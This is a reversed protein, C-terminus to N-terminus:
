RPVDCVPQRLDVHTHVARRRARGDLDAVGGQGGLTYEIKAEPSDSTDSDIDGLIEDATRSDALAKFIRSYGTKGTGNEGYLITLAAHPEIVESAILANVGSVESLRTISLPAAKEEKGAQTSLPPVAALTRPDLAKEQRFLNYATEVTAEAVPRGSAIVDSVIFRVSENNDNAWEALLIRPDAPNPEQPAEVAPTPDLSMQGPETTDTM